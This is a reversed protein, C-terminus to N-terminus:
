TRKGSASRVMDLAADGVVGFGPLISLLRVLVGLLSHSLQSNYTPKDLVDTDILSTTVEPRPEGGVVTEVVWEHGRPLLTPRLKVIAEGGVPPSETAAAHSTSTIGYMTCHLNVTLPKGADFHATAVDVPGVNRFSLRVLHPDQVEFDRYTVKLLDPTQGKSILPTSSYEFLLRRRRTGWRRAALASVVIALVGVAIAIIALLRDTNLDM